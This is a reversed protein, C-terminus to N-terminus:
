AASEESVPSAPQARRPGFIVRDLGVALGTPFVTLVGLAVLEILNKNVILYSGEAPATYTYGILPPNALYYLALLLIGSASAARTLFGLILGLGIAVLGWMNMLDVARLITPSAAMWNFVGSLVWKSEMLFGASTWYPNLIKVVGEYLFHWGILVRLLVMLTLQPPSYRPPEGTLLNRVM